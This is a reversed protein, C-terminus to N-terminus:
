RTYGLGVSGAPVFDGDAPPGENICGTVDPMSPWCAQRNPATGSLQAPNTSNTIGPWVTQGFPRTGYRQTYVGDLTIDVGGQPDMWYLYRSGDNLAVLNTDRLTVPGTVGEGAVLQFKIGQYDSYCTFEDVRLEGLGTWTQICDAHNTSQLGDLGEMRVNQVQLVMSDHNATIGDTEAVSGANGDFFVGEVHVTGPIGNLYLLRQDHGGVQAVPLGTRRSIDSLSLDHHDADFTGLM